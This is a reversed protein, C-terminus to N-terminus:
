RIQFADVYDIGMTDAGAGANRVAITLKLASTPITLATAASTVKAGNYWPTATTGDWYFGVTIYTADALTGLSASATETTLKTVFHATGASLTADSAFGIFETAGQAYASSDGLVTTDASAFGIAWDKTDADSQKIRAQFWAPKTSTFQFSLGTAANITGLQLQIADNDSASTTLLLVGGAEDHVTATPTTGIVTQVWEGVLFTHFDNRYRHAIAPDSLWALTPCNGWMSTTGSYASDTFIGREKGGSVPDLNQGHRFATIGTAM